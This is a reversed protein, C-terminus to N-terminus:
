ARATQPGRVITGDPRVTNPGVPIGYKASLEVQLTRLETSEQTFKETAQQRANDLQQMQLQINQVRLFKNEMRLRDEETLRTPLAPVVQAPQASAGEAPTPVGKVTETPAEVTMEEKPDM